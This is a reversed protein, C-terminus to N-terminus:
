GAIEGEEKVSACVCVCTLVTEGGGEIKSTCSPNSYMYQLFVARMTSKEVGQNLSSDVTVAISFIDPLSLSLSKSNPIYFSPLPISLHLDGRLASRTIAHKNRQAWAFAAAAAAAALPPPHSTFCCSLPFRSPGFHSILWPM